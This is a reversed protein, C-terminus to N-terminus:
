MHIWMLQELTQPLIALSARHVRQQTCAGGRVNRKSLLREGHVAVSELAGDKLVLDVFQQLLCIAKAILAVLM